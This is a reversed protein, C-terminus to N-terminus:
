QNEECGEAELGMEKRGIACILDITKKEKEEKENKEM